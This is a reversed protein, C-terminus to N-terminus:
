WAVQLVDDDHHYWVQHNSGGASRRRACRTLRALLGIRRLRLSPLGLRQGLGRELHGDCGTLLSRPGAAGQLCLDVLHAPLGAYVALGDDGLDSRQWFPKRGELVLLGVAGVRSALFGHQVAVNQGQLGPGGREGLVTGAVILADVDVVCLDLGKPSLLGRAQRARSCKFVRTTEGKALLERAQAVTLPKGAVEKWLVWRGGGDQERWGSCGYGKKGEVVPAGCRPCPGLSEAAPVTPAARQQGAVDAVIRRTLDAIGALFTTM